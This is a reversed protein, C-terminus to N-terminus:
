SEGSEERKDLVDKIGKALKDLEGQVEKFADVKGKHYLAKSFSLGSLLGGVAAFVYLGLNFKSSKM